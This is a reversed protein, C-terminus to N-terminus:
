TVAALTQSQHKAILANLLKLQKKVHKYQVYEIEMPSRDEKQVRQGTEQLFNEEFDKLVRRLRRKENLSQDRRMQLEELSAEHYSASAPSFPSDNRSPSECLDDHDSPSRGSSRQSPSVMQTVRFDTTGFMDDEDGEEEQEMDYKSHVPGMHKPIFERTEVHEEITNLDSPNAEESISRRLEKNKILKKLTRYRDYLPKMVEKSARSTPRGYKSELQLLAKQIAVKEEKVEDQNMELVDFGRKADDRKEQLRKQALNLAEKLGALHITSSGEEEGNPSLRAPLTSHLPNKSEKAEIKLAKLHKNARKLEGIMKRIEPQSLKETHSPKAHYQREFEEEYQKIKQKLSRVQRTLRKIVSVQDEEELSSESRKSSSGFTPPADKARPSLPADYPEHQLLSTITQLKELRSLTQTSGESGSQGGGGRPSAQQGQWAPGETNVHLSTLDLPPVVQGKLASSPQNEGILRRLEDEIKEDRTEEDRRRGDEGREYMRRAEGGDNEREDEEIKRREGKIDSGGILQKRRGEDREGEKAKGRRTRPQPVPHEQKPEGDTNHIGWLGGERPNRNRNPPSNQGDGHQRLWVDQNPTKLDSYDSRNAAKGKGALSDRSDEGGSGRNKKTPSRRKPPAVRGATLSNLPGSNRKVIDLESDESVKSSSASTERESITSDVLKKGIIIGQSEFIDFAKSTPRGKRKIPHSRDHSQSHDHSKTSVLTDDSFQQVRNRVSIGEKEAFSNVLHELSSESNSRRNFSSSDQNKKQHKKRPMAVPTEPRPSLDFRPNGHAGFLHQSISEQITREVFESTTSLSIPSPATSTGQDSDLNFPSLAREDFEGDPLSLCGQNQPMGSSVEEKSVESYNSNMDLEDQPVLKHRRQRMYQDYSMPTVPPSKKEKAAQVEIRKSNWVRDSGSISVPSPPSGIDHGFLFDFKDIFLRVLHNTQGQERLGQIGDACRFLNPGFVIALAMSNMKNTDEHHIVKRLFSCLFRLVLFNEEPLQQLLNKLQKLSEEKNYQFEEQVTLFQSHLYGVILPDPLERFFLKLLSAVAMVDGAEELNANGHRDYQMRLKDVIKSSGNIRFIGEHGIGHMKIFEIIKQLLDPIRVGNPGYRCLEKLPVGFMKNNVKRRISAPSRLIKQM